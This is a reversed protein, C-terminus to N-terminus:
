DDYDVNFIEGDGNYYTISYDDYIFYYLGSNYKFPFDKIYEALEPREDLFQNIKKKTCNGSNIKLFNLFDIVNNLEEESFVRVFFQGYDDDDHELDCTIEYSNKYFDGRPTYRFRRM